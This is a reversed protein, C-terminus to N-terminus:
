PTNEENVNTVVDSADLSADGNYDVLGQYKEPIPATGLLHNMLDDFGLTSTATPDVAAGWTGLGDSGTLGVAGSLAVTGEALNVSQGEVGLLHFDVLSGVVTDHVLRMRMATGLESTLTVVDTMMAFPREVYQVTINVPDSFAIPQGAADHTVIVFLAASQNPFAQGDTVLAREYITASRITVEIRNPDSEDTLVYGPFEVSNLPYASEEGPIIRAPAQLDGAGRGRSAPSMTISREDVPNVPINANVGYGLWVEYTMAPSSSGIARISCYVEENILKQSWPLSPFQTEPTVTISSTSPSLPGDEYLELLLASGTPIVSSEIILSWSRPYNSPDQPCIFWDVDDDSDITHSQPIPGALPPLVNTTTAATDDFYPDDEYIDPPSHQALAFVPLALFLCISILHVRRM